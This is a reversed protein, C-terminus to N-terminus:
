FTLERYIILATYAPEAEWNLEPHPPSYAMQYKIDILEGSITSLFENIAVDLNNHYSDLSKILKTKIQSTRIM